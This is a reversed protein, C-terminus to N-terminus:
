NMIILNFFITSYTVQLTQLDGSVMKSFSLRIKKKCQSAQPATLDTDVILVPKLTFIYKM